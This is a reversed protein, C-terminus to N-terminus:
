TTEKLKWKEYYTGDGLFEGCKSCVYHTIGDLDSDYIGLWTKFRKPNEESWGYMSAFERAKACNGNYYKLFSEYIDGGDILFGCKPCKDQESM